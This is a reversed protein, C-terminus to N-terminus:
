FSFGVSLGFWMSNGFTDGKERNSIFMPTARLLLGRHGHYRYGISLITLRDASGSFYTYGLAPEVFHRGVGSIVGISAIINYSNETAHIGHYENGGIRAVLALPKKLPFIRDYNFSYIAGNGLVEFYLSNKRLEGPKKALTETDQASISQSYTYALFAIIVWVLRKM